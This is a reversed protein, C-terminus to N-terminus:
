TGMFYPGNRFILSRDEANEFVFVFYGKGVFHSKIGEFVLPIWNAKVWDDVAKPSLWLGTFQKILGREALNLAVRCTEESRFLM